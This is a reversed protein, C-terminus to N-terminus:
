FPLSNSSSRSFHLSDLGAAALFSAGFATTAGSLGFAAACDFTADALGAFGAEGAIELGAAVGLPKARGDAAADADGAADCFFVASVKPLESGAADFNARGADFSAAGFAAAAAAPTPMESELRGADSEPLSM